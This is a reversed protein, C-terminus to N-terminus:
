AAIVGNGPVAPRLAVKGARLLLTAEPARLPRSFHYGQVIRCGWTELLELQAATEVGEVVVEINLERALGLAARVIADSGTAQGIDAIFSQAIKIRDVPYRRLYDLSSYGSGFDDIALRHGAKRFRLLLDNRDRSADMLVSETLELELASAPLDFEALSASIDKELDQPRKFQVGSLNVGLFPPSVGADLWERIQSCARRIVWRGLPLILGNKEAAPIFTGPGVVGRSPHNWRVLAELGVIRGTAIEVQPQYMLFLRDTAIAERLEMGMTVRARVEADMAEGYFRYTGRADSKARYLAVDAHALMTEADSSDAGYVAIGITTGSHIENGHIQFPRSFAHLVKDAVSGAVVAAEDVLGPGVAAGLIRESVVAADAPDQIDVLIIAFEDGGFRAVTDVTRVSELLREAAGRLLLDGVPHGLTDNVDKFHDIDLYLVAFSKANRRARVIARDLEEVFVRRNALGTLLDYRAMQRVTEEARKRETVDHFCALLYTRGELVMASASLDAFLISGDKRLIPLDPVVKAEGKLLAEFHRRIDPLAEAPHIDGLSMQLVADPGVHGLLECFSRNPFSFRTTEADVMVIGDVNTELVTRLRLESDALAREARKRETVDLTVCVLYQPNDDADYLPRKFTYGTRNSQKAASWFVEEFEVPERGAFIARDAALFREMQDPPFYQGADTGRLAEFSLGWQEECARNMLFFRSEHDKVFFAVPILDVISLLRDRSDQISRLREEIDVTYARVEELFRRWDSEPLAEKDIQFRLREVIDSRARM